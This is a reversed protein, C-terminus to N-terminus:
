VTELFAPEAGAMPEGDETQLYTAWFPEVTEDAPGELRVFCAMRAAGQLWLGANVLLRHVATMHVRVPNVQAMDRLLATIM